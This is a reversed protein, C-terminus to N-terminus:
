ILKIVIEREGDGRYFHVDKVLRHGKVFRMFENVCQDEERWEGQKEPELQMDRIHCKVCYGDCDFNHECVEPQKQSQNVQDIIQSVKEALELITKKDAVEEGNIKVFGLRVINKIKKM